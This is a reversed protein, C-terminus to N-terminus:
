RVPAAELASEGSTDPGEAVEEPVGRMPVHALEPVTLRLVVFALLGLVVSFGLVAARSLLMAALAAEPEVGLYSLLLTGSGETVGLGQPLPSVGGILQTIAYVSTVRFPGWNEIGLALGSIYLALAGAIVTPIGMLLGAAVPWPHLLLALQGAVVGSRGTSLRRLAQWTSAFRRLSPSALMGLTVLLPLTVPLVVPAMALYFPVALTAVLALSAFDVVVQMVVTPAVLAFRNGAGLLYVRMLEGAPTFTFWQGALYAAVSRRMPVRIGAVRLYYHWRVAKLLYYVLAALVVPVLFSPDLTLLTKFTDGMKLLRGGIAVLAVLLLLAIGYRVLHRRVDTKRQGPAPVLTAPRSAITM